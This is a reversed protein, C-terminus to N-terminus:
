GWTMVWHGSLMWISSVRPRSHHLLHMRTNGRRSPRLHALRSRHHTPHGRASPCGTRPARHGIGMSEGMQIGRLRLVHKLLLAKWWVTLAEEMVDM